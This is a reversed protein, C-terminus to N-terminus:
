FDMFIFISPHSILEKLQTDPSTLIAEKTRITKEIQRSSLPLSMKIVFFLSFAM